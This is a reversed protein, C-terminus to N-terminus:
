SRGKLIIGFLGMKNFRRLDPRVPESECVFSHSADNNALFTRFAWNTDIDDIVMAGGPALHKWAAELEFLVNRETHFSDHVFLGIEGLHGLLPRLKRRSSGAILSWRSPDEVAIGVRKQTQKDLAPRDISWLHGAGNRELAELAFRSTFGHAVGTEVVHEPDMHRIICWIARVLAADGDNFGNFSEPGTRVGKAQVGAVVNPWLASCERGADCPWPAGLARHLEFEWNRSIEYRCPGNRYERTQVVRDVMTDLVAVPDTALARVARAPHRAVYRFASALL